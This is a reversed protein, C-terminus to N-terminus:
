KVLQGIFLKLQNKVPLEFGVFEVTFNISREDALNASDQVVLQCTIKGDDSLGSIVRKPSLTWTKGLTEKVTEILWNDFENYNYTNNM